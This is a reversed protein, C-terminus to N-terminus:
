HPPPNDNNRPINKLLQRPAADGLKGVPASCVCTHSVQDETVWLFDRDGRSFQSLACRMLLFKPKVSKFMRVRFNGIELSELCDIKKWFSM